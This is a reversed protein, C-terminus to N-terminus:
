VRWGLEKASKRIAKVFKRAFKEDFLMVMDDEGHDGDQQYILISEADNEVLTGCGAAAKLNTKM